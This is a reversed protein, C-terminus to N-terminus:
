RLAEAQWPDLGGSRNARRLMLPKALEADGAPTTMIREGDPRSVRLLWGRKECMSVTGKGFIRVVRFKDPSTMMVLDGRTKLVLHGKAAALLCLHETKSKPANPRRPYRSM